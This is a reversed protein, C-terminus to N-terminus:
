QSTHESLFKEIKSALQIPTEQMPFHGTAPLTEIQLNPYWKQFTHKMMEGFGEFDCAGLIVLMPTKLGNVESSFDTNAYMDLYKVRAEETSCTRWQKVMESAIHDSYRRGTSLHISECAFADNSKAAEQLFYMVEAPSPSGSAPVPTIAILSKVQSPNEAAIKQAIMGSMSHGIVHFEKWGLADAVAKVDKAAEAATFSGTLDKSLGYGRLDVFAFTYKKIDIYPIIPDYSTSDCFWNHMVIVKEKGSGVLKYRPMEM